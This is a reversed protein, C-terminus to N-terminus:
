RASRTVRLVAPLLVAGVVVQATLYSLAVGAIGLSRMTLLSMSLVITSTTLQVLVIPVIRRRVRSIAIFVLIIFRPIVAIAFLRLVTAGDQAYQAGFLSLLAPALVFVLVAGLAFLILGRRLTLRAYRALRPPDRASEVTLSTGFHDAVLEISSGLLYAVYFVANERVGLVAAVLVPLAFTGAQASLNGVYDLSVFRVLAGRPPLTEPQPSQMLRPLLRGFVLLNVPVLALIAPISWSLLIGLGPVVTALAVLLALKALSFASNEVPVWKAGRLATLVNDQLAFVGWAVVTAVFLVAVWPRGSWLAVQDSLLPAIALFGVSLIVAFCGSAAYAYAILRGGRNGATPLFRALTTSLSLQAVSSLLIMTSIIAGGEGVQEQSYLHAAVAWYGVGLLLTIGTNLTLAYVNSSLPHRVTEWLRSTLPSFFPATKSTRPPRSMTLSLRRKSRTM